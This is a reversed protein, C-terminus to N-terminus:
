IDLQSSISFFIYDLFILTYSLLFFHLQFVSQVFIIWTESQCTEPNYQLTTPMYSTHRCNMPECGPRDRRDSWGRVGPMVKGMHGPETQDARYNRSLVKM